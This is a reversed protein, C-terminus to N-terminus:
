LATIIMESVAPSDQLSTQEGFRGSSAPTKVMSAGARAVVPDFGTEGGVAVDLPALKLLVLPGVPPVTKGSV